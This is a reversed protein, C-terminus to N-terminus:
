VGRLTATEAHSQVLWNWADQITPVTNASSAPREVMVVPIGLQRAAALKAATATGGSNKSVLRTIGHQQLVAIEAAEHFPGRDTLVTANPPLLDAAPADVSRILYTHQAAARFPALDRRGITLFVSQPEIGLAKAAAKMDWVRVWNDREQPAWAPRQVAILPTGSTSAAAVANASMRAAFPHTADVLLEIEEEEIFAMLGDVGGFGGVRVPVPMALPNSTAGALSLTADFRDDDALRGALQRAETTGGLILVKRRSM